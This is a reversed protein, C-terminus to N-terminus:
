DFLSDYITSFLLRGEMAGARSAFDIPNRHFCSECLDYECEPCHRMPLESYLQYNKTVDGIRLVGRCNDCYVSHHDYGDPRDNAACSELDHGAPCRRQM